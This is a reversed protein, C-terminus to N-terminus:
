YGKQSSHKYRLNGNVDYIEVVTTVGSRSMGSGGSYDTVRITEGARMNYDLDYNPLIVGQAAGFITLVAAVPPAAIYTPVAAIASLVGLAVGNQRTMERNFTNAADAGTLDNTFAVSIFSLTSVYTGSSTKNVTVATDKTIIIGTAKGTGM